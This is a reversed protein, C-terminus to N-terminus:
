MENITTPMIIGNKFERYRKETPNIRMYLDLIGNTETNFGPIGNHDKWEKFAGFAGYWNSSTGNAIRLFTNDHSTTGSTYRFLGGRGSSQDYNTNYNYNATAWAQSHTATLPNVTQSWRYQLFQETNNKQEIAM